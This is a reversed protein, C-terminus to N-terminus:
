RPSQLITVIDGVRAGLLAAASGEKVSLELYDNSGIVAMLGKGQAYYHSTNAIQQNRIEVGAGGAPIDHSRLNTILNGFRDIHIIHGILHGMADRFPVAIAFSNLSDVPDGFEGIPLDLSLHAAVPSFVDRGHFTTSVPHRWFEQKTLSVAECGEPLVRKTLLDSFPYSHAPKIDSLEHLIYSLVGNDPTVFFASPTKLIISRRHSGVGPDVVVLHITGEPFYRWATHLIFSAQRISHPEVAHTIDVIKAQPNISLMVGKMSAVYSDSTGFDTTLTIVRSM